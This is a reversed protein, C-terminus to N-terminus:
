DSDADGDGEAAPDGAADPGHGKWGTMGGAVGLTSTLMDWLRTPLVAKLVPTLKVLWPELVYARNAKVADVVRAAVQEPTLFRTTLPAKVGDFMGTDIYSPCVATVGVHRHGLLRLEARISETFGLAAWKSSAYSAGYPLGILASASAINVLHAEPRGILDPLFAHTMALPGVANVRYTSLHKEIPTETFPGGHVVGANNVLLDIPGCDDLVRRRLRAISETDTVDVRYGRVAVGLAGVIEVAEPLADGDIDALLISAREGAFAIGMELGIGRAGGTILVQKDRLETM